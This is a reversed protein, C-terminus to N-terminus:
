DGSHTESSGDIGGSSEARRGATPSSLERLQERFSPSFVSAFQELFKERLARDQSRALVELLYSTKEMEILHEIMRILKSTSQEQFGELLSPVMGARQIEDAIQERGYRDETQLFQDILREMGHRGFSRLSRAVAERVMWHSDTLRRAIEAAQSGDSFKALGRVTHLRVFWESDDLMKRLVPISRSDEIYAIVPAARARVDPYADSALGSLFLEQLEGPFNSTNLRFDAHSAAAEQEVIERLIDTAMFRIRGEEHKLSPTFRAAESLPFGILASKVTRLSVQTSPGLIVAHLLDQLADFGEPEHIFGLSRVAVTRVDPHPDKLAQVLIPWSPQHGILGLNEAAKARLLFRLRRFRELPGEPHWLARKGRSGEFENKLQRQWLEVLGLDESLRRLLPVHIAEPPKELLLKELILERDSGSIKRLEELGSEYECERSLMAALVPKYRSRIGDLRRFYKERQRRRRIAALALGLTALLVVVLVATVIETIHELLYVM